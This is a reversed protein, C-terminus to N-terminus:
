ANKTSRHWPAALILLTSELDQTLTTRIVGAPRGLGHKVTTNNRIPKHYSRSEVQDGGSLQVLTRTSLHEDPCYTHQSRESQWQQFFFDRHLLLCSHCHLRWFVTGTGSSTHTMCLVTSRKGLIVHHILPVCLQQDKGLCDQSPINAFSLRRIGLLASDSM